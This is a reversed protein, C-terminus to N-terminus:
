RGPFGLGIAALLALMAAAASNGTNLRCLTIVFM